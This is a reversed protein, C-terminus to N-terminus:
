QHTLEENQWEFIAKVRTGADSYQLSKCLSNVLPIGRGHYNQNDSFSSVLKEHDFGEGSDKMRIILQGGNKLVRHSFMVKIYGERENLRQTKMEYYNSFGEASKKLRSDLGLLGHDLCNNFLESIIIFISQKYKLLGQIEMIANLMVPVPSVHQLTKMEFEMSSKWILPVIQKYQNTQGFNKWPANDLDCHIEILTIDDQQDLGLCHQQQGALINEFVSQENAQLCSEIGEFGFQKGENSEAEIIGDTFLYLFDDATVSFLQEQVEFDEIIGLPVNQSKITQTQGTSTNFLYHDPLGCTMVNIFRSEPDLTVLTAALFMQVPLLCHLKKNIERLIEAGGFGKNVMGYFIDAAPSAGVSASLGHGTFDGLLCYLQNGPTKAVLFIDGNFLSMPSLFHKVNPADLFRSHIIKEHIAAAVDQEQEAIQQFTQLQKKQESQEEYLRKFRLLSNIKAHLITPNFPKAIFDDAKAEVCRKLNEENDQATIFVIPVYENESLSGVIQKAAGIGDLNPMVVDLICLDPKEKFFVEVAQQGDNALVVEIQDSQLMKQLMMRQLRTDDAVLIKAVHGM